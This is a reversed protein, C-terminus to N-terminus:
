NLLHNILSYLEKLGDKEISVMMGKYEGHIYRDKTKYKGIYVKNTYSDLMKDFLDYDETNINYIGKVIHRLVQKEESAEM